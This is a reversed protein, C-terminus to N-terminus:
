IPKKNFGAGKMVAYMPAMRDVFSDVHGYFFDFFGNFWLLISAITPYKLNQLLITDYDSPVVGWVIRSEMFYLRLPGM